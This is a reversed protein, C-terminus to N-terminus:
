DTPPFETKRFHVRGTASEGAPALYNDFNSQLTRGREITIEALAEGIGDLVSGQAQQEANSLNIIESGIDGAVWVHEVIVQGQRSVRAQVVEAFHGRHSFHFAVGMGTGRPLTHTGWGSMEAVLELAGRMRAADFLPSLM